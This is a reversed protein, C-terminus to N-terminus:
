AVMKHFYLRLGEGSSPFLDNPVCKHKSYGMRPNKMKVDAVFREDSTELKKFSLM